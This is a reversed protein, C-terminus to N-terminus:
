SVTRTGLNITAAAENGGLHYSLRVAMAQEAILVLLILLYL